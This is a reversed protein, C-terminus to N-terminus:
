KKARATPKKAATETAEVVPVIEAKTETSGGNKEFYQVYDKVTEIFKHNIENVFEAPNYAVENFPKGLNSMLKEHASKWNEYLKETQNQYTEIVLHSNLKKSADQVATILEEGLKVQREILDKMFDPMYQYPINEKITSTLSSVLSKQRETIGKYFEVSKDVLNSQGLSDRLKKSTNVITEVMQSQANVLADLMTNKM